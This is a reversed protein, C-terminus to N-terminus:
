RHFAAPSTPALNRARAAALEIALPIGDLRECVSTIIELEAEAFMLEDDSASASDCFLATGDKTSLQPVPVVREGAVLLAERSTAIVTVGDCSTVISQLLEAVPDLVHECNDLLLLLRRQALSEIISRVLAV